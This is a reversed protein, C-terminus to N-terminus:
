VPLCLNSAWSNQRLQYSQPTLCIYRWLFIQLLSTLNKNVVYLWTTWSHGSWIAISVGLATAVHWQKLDRLFFLLLVLLYKSNNASRNPHSLCISSVRLVTINIWMHSCDTSHFTSVWTPICKIQCVMYKIKKNGTRKEM